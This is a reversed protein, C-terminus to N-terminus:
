PGPSRSGPRFRISEVMDRLDTITEASTGPFYQAVVVLRTGAVNMAWVDWHNDPGQVYFGPDWPRWDDCQSIDSPGTLTFFTGRFGGLRVRTPRSVDLTPHAVVADVFDKVTPGVKIDPVLHGDHNRACPDSNLGVHFNTWGIVLGAGDPGNTAGGSDQLGGMGAPYLLRFDLAAEWGDPVTLEVDLPPPPTPHPPCSITDGKECGFVLVHHYRGPIVPGDQLPQIASSTAPPSPSPPPTSTPTPAITRSQSATARADRDAGDHAGCGCVALVVAVVINAM